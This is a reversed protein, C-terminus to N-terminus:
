FLLHHLGSLCNYYLEVIINIYVNELQKEGSM